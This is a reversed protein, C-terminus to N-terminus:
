ESSMQREFGDRLEDRLKVMPEKAVVRGSPNCSVAGRCEPWHECSYFPGNRGAVLQMGGNCEPCKLDTREHKRHLLRM